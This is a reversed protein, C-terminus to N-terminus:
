LRRGYLLGDSGDHDPGILVFGLHTYFGIARHNAADVGLHVGAVHRARLAALLTDMLRRGLGQGQARPHLDIHLHAPYEALIAGPTPPPHHIWRHLEQEPSLDGTAPPESYRERRAPWWAEECAAEFATTDAAGLVYGAPGRDDAAVFALEPELALYPGVWVEGFLDPDTCLASADEGADGTLRCIEYLADRDEAVATRIVVPSM